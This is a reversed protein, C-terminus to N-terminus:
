FKGKICNWSQGPPFGIGGIWRDYSKKLKPRVTKEVGKGWYFTYGSEELKLGTNM